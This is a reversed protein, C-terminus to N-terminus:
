HTATLPAAATSPVVPFEIVTRTEAPPTGPESLYVERPPGAVALDQRGIWATLESYATGLSDYPGVHMVSAFLGAPLTTCAWGAPPDVPLGVPACIQLPFPAGEPGPQGHYVIFPPEPTAIRHRGLYAYVEGFSSSIATPLDALRVELSKSLVIAEERQRVKFDTQM